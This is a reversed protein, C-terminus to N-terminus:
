QSSKDIDIIKVGQVYDKTEYKTIRTLKSTIDGMRRIQSMIRQFKERIPDEKETEMLMTECYSLISQIPQNLEHCVAGATELLTQLREKNVREEEAKMEKTVITLCGRSLYIGEQKYSEVTALDKLWIIRDAELSIKYVADITGAKKVDERLMTRSSDLEKRSLVEKEIDRDTEPYRYIRRDLVSNQFAEAVNSADCRLLRIFHKSVFEYWIEKEADKWASIYPIAPNGANEFARYCAIYGAVRRKLDLSYNGKLIRGCYNKDVVQELERNITM